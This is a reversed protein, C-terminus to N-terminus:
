NLKSDGWSRSVISVIIVLHVGDGVIFGDSNSSYLHEISTLIGIACLNRRSLSPSLPLSLSLSLQSGIIWLALLRLGFSDLFCVYQVVSEFQGM